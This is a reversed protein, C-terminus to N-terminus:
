RSNRIARLVAEPTAPLDNIEAGIADCLANVVAPATPNVSPEAVGKVGFPGRPENTQVIISTFKEPM